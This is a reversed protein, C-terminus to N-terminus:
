GPAAIFSATATLDMMTTTRRRAHLGRIRILEKQAIAIASRQPEAQLTRAPDLGFEEHDLCIQAVFAVLYDTEFLRHRPCLRQARSYAEMAEHLRLHDFLCHGRQTFCEALEERRSLNELYLGTALDAESLPRPRFHYHGDNRPDFGVSTSEINFREGNPEEWRLFLHEMGRVIFLPYGLRRGIAAFLVPM